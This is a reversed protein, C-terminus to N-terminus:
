PAATALHRYSTCFGEYAERYRGAALATVGDTHRTRATSARQSSRNTAEFQELRVQVFDRVEEARGGVSAPYLLSMIRNCRLLEEEIDSALLLRTNEFSAQIEATQVLGDQLACQAIVIADSQLALAPVTLVGFCIEQAFAPPGAPLANCAIGAAVLIRFTADVIAVQARSNANCREDNLAGDGNTDSLFGLGPLTATFVDYSPGAPYAPDFGVTAREEGALAAPPAVMALLLLVGVASVV